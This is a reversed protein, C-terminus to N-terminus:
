NKHLRHTTTPRRAWRKHTMARSLLSSWKHAVSRASWRSNWCGCAFNKNMVIDVFVHVIDSNDNMANSASSSNPASYRATRRSCLRGQGGQCYRKNYRWSNWEDRHFRPQLCVENCHIDSLTTYTFQTSDRDMRISSNRNGASCLETPESEDKGNQVEVKGNYHHGIWTKTSCGCVNKKM